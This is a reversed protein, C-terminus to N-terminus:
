VIELNRQGQWPFAELAACVADLQAPYRLFDIHKMDIVLVPHTTESLFQEYAASLQLLYSDPIAKEYERGRQAIHSRLKSLPARLYIVVDPVPLQLCLLGYLDKFLTREKGLLTVGAFLLSKRFIYDTVVLDSEKVSPQLVDRLQQFRSTLFSVELSFAFREPDAYFAPLFPNDAFSELVARGKYKQALLNTLTTKGAGIVGEVALHRFKM